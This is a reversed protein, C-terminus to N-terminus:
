VCSYLEVLLRVANQNATSYHNVTKKIYIQRFELKYPCHQSFLAHRRGVTVGARVHAADALLRRGNSRLSRWAFSRSILGDSDGDARASTIRSAQRTLQTPAPKMALRGATVGARDPAAVRGHAPSESPRIRDRICM